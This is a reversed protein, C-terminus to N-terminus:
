SRAKEMSIYFFFFLWMIKIKTAHNNFKLNTFMSKLFTTKELIATAERIFINLKECHTEIEVFFVEIFQVLDTTRLKILALM